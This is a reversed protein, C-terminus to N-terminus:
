INSKNLYKIYTNSVSRTRYKDIHMLANNILKMKKGWLNNMAYVINNYTCNHKVYYAKVITM